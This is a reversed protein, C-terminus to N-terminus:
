VAARVHTPEEKVVHHLFWAYTAALATRFPTAPRWGLRRLRSTDLAKLPMGDPKGTDFRFRGPYGVVEAVARAVEVISLNAAGGLNIPESGDYHRM